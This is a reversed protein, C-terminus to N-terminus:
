DIKPLVLMESTDCNWQMVVGQSLLHNAAVRAELLHGQANELLLEQYAGLFTQETIKAEFMGKSNGIAPSIQHPRLGVFGMGEVAKDSSWAGWASEISGAKMRAEVWNVKGFYDAVYQSVPEYYLVQPSGQQQIKGGQLLIIEDASSLADQTDHTVFIATTNTKKLIQKLDRRVQAKLGEDLNSFPEDLLLLHPQPALARALAVRQQQGGSLEHPYRKDLGQLGVLALVEQARQKQLKQGHLGYIINEHITLHPFLAYDQFVMGIGRKEPPIIHKATAITNGALRIEGSNPSEFGAILRLLTTKGSGSEGLLALVKGKTLEFSIDTLAFAKNGKYQKSVQQISLISPTSTM